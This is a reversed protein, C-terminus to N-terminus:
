PRTVVRPLDVRKWRQRQGRRYRGPGGPGVLRLRDQPAQQQHRHDRAGTGPLNGLAALRLGVATGDFGNDLVRRAMADFGTLLAENITAGAGTVVTMLLLGRLISQTQDARATWALRAGGVILGLVAAFAVLPRTLDTLSTIVGSSSSVDPDPGHTWFTMLAKIVDALGKAFADVVAQFASGAVSSVASGVADCASGLVPVDCPNPM